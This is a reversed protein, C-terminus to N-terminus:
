IPVPTQGLLESLQSLNSAGPMLSQLQQSLGPYYVMPIEIDRTKGADIVVVSRGMYDASLVVLSYSGADLSVSFRGEADTTSTAPMQQTTSYIMVTANRAEEGADFTGNSNEDIFARGELSGGFDTITLRVDAEIRNREMAQDFSVNVTSEAITGGNQTVSITLSGEPAVLSFSGDDRTQTIDHVIRNEDSIGVTIGRLPSGDAGYVTGEVVAGPYYRAVTVYGNDFITKFHKMGYAPARGNYILYGDELGTMEQPMIGMYLRYITSNVLKDTMTTLPAVGGSLFEVPIYSVQYGEDRHERAYRLAEEQNLLTVSGSPDSVTRYSTMWPEKPIASPRLGASVVWWTNIFDSENFGSLRVIAGTVGPVVVSYPQMYGFEFEKSTTVFYEISRGTKEKILALLDMAREEDILPTYEYRILSDYAAEANEVGATRILETGQTRNIPALDEYEQSLLRAAMMQLAHTENQSLFFRSAWFYGNQFPDACTPHKGIEINYFGYDWWSAVAPRDEIAPPEKYTTACQALFGYGEIEQESMFLQGTPGTFRETYWNRHDREWEPSSGADIALLVNPMFIVFVILLALLVHKVKISKRLAYFRGTRKLRAFDKRIAGFNAFSLIYALTIGNMVAFIPGANFVFRAASAAMFTALIFWVCLFTSYLNWRKWVDWLLLALAIFAMFFTAPGLRFALSGIDPPQAESITRYVPNGGFYGWGTMILQAINPMTVYLVGFGALLAVVAGPFLLIWPIKRLAIFILSSILAALLVVVSILWADQKALTMYYPASLLPGILFPILTILSIRLSSRKRVHNIVQVVFLYLFLILDVYVFGEWSMALIGLFVGSLLAYVSSSKEERLVSRIGPLGDEVPSEPTRISTIARVYFAIAMLAFFLNFSDYDASGVASNEIHVATIALFLAALMGERKGRKEAIFYVPFICLSGFIAPVVNIASIASGMIKAVLAATFTFGIPRPNHWGFPYNLLPDWRLNRGNELIYEVVRLHYWPDPGGGMTEGAVGMSWNFFCTLFLAVGFIVVLGIIEKTKPNM